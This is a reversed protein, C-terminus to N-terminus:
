CRIVLICLFISPIPPLYSSTSQSFSINQDDKYQHWSSFFFKYCCFNYKIRPSSLLLLTQWSTVARVFEVKQKVTLLQEDLVVFSLITSVLFHCKKERGDSSSRICHCRCSCTEAKDKRTNQGILYFFYFGILFIHCCYEKEVPYLFVPHLVERPFGSSWEQSLSIKLVSCSFLSITTYIARYKFFSNKKENQCYSCQILFLFM